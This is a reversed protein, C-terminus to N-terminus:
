PDQPSAPWTRAPRGLARLDDGAGSLAATRSCSSAVLAEGRVGGSAYVLYRQGTEFPYGCDGGGWGTVVRVTRAEVGKWARDVRFTIVRRGQPRLFISRHTRVVTGSFVAAADARAEAAPRPPACECFGTDCAPAMWLSGLFALLTLM